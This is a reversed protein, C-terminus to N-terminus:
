IHIWTRRNVIQNITMPSLNFMISIKNKSMGSSFLSRIELVDTENIKSNHHSSGLKKPKKPKEKKIRNYKNKNLNPKLENIWFREREYLNDADTYELISIIDLNSKYDYYSTFNNKIFQHIFSNHNDNFTHSFHLRLREETFYKTAGVYLSGKYEIKYVISVSKRKLQHYDIQYERKQRKICENCRAVRRISSKTIAENKNCILCKM